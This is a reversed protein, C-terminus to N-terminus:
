RRDRLRLTVSFANPIQTFLNLTKETQFIKFSLLTDLTTKADTTNCLIRLSFEASVNVCWWSKSIFNAAITAYSLACPM